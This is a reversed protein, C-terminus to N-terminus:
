CLEEESMAFLNRTESAEQEGSDARLKELCQRVAEAEEQMEGTLAALRSTLQEGAEDKWSSGLLEAGAKLEDVSRCLNFILEEMRKEGSAGRVKRLYAPKM